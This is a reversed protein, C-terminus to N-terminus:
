TLSAVAVGVVLPMLIFHVGTADPAASLSKSPRMTGNPRFAARPYKFMYSAMGAVVAACMGRALPTGLGVSVCVGRWGEIVAQDQM